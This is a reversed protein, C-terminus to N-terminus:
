RRLRIFAWALGLAAAVAGVVGRLREGEAHELGLATSALAALLLSVVVLVLPLGLAVVIRLTIADREQQTHAM